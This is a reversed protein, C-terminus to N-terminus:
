LESHAAFGKRAGQGSHLCESHANDAVRQHNLVRGGGFRTEHEVREDVSELWDRRKLGFSGVTDGIGLATPPARATRDRPGACPLASIAKDNEAKQSLHNPSRFTRALTMRMSRNPRLPPAAFRPRFSRPSAASPQPPTRLRFERAAPRPSAKSRIERGSDPISFPAVVAQFPEFRVRFHCPANLGVLLRLCENALVLSREGSPHASLVSSGRTM